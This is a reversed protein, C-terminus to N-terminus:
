TKIWTRFRAANYRSVIEQKEIGSTGFRVKIKGNVEKNFGLVAKKAVIFQRNLRFFSHTELKKEINILYDDIISQGGDLMFAYVTGNEFKFFAIEEKEVLKSNNGVSSILHESTNEEIKKSSQNLLGRSKTKCIRYLLNWLIFTTIASPFVIVYFSTDSLKENWFYEIYIFNSIFCYGTLVQVSTFISLWPRKLFETRAKDFIINIKKFLNWSSGVMWMTFLLNIFQTRGWQLQFLKPESLVFFICIIGGLFLGKFVQGGKELMKIVKLAGNTILYVPM